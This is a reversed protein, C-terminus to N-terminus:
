SNKSTVLGFGGSKESFMRSYLAQLNFLKSELNAPDIIRLMNREKNYSEMLTIHLLKSPLSILIHGSTQILLEPEKFLVEDYNYYNYDLALSQLFQKVKKDYTGSKGTGMKEALESQTFNHNYKRLVAQICAPYCWEPKEQKELKYRM